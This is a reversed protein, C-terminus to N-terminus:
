LTKNMEESILSPAEDNKVERREGCSERSWIAERDEGCLFPSFRSSPVLKSRVIAQFKRRNPRVILAVTATFRFM